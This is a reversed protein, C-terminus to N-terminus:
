KNLLIPIMKKFFSIIASSESTKKEPNTSNTRDLIKEYYFKM